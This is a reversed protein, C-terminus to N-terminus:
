PEKRRFSIEPTMSQTSEINLNQRHICYKWKQKMDKEEAQPKRKEKNFFMWTLYYGQHIRNLDFWIKCNHKLTRVQSTTSTYECTSNMEICTNSLTAQLNPLVGLWIYIFIELHKYNM